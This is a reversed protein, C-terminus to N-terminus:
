SYDLQIRIEVVRTKEMINIDVSEKEGSVHAGEKDLLNQIRSASLSGKGNSEGHGDLELWEANCLM